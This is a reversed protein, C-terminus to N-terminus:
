DLLISAQALYNQAEDYKNQATALDDKELAKASKELASLGKKLAAVASKDEPPLVAKAYYEVAKNFDKMAYNFHRIASKEKDEDLKNMVKGVEAYGKNMYHIAENYDYNAEYDDWSDATAAGAYGMLSLASIGVFLAQSFRAGSFISSPKM